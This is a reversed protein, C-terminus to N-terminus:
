TTFKKLLFGSQAKEGRALDVWVTTVTYVMCIRYVIFPQKSVPSLNAHSYLRLMTVRPPGM